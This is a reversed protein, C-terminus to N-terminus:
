QPVCKQTSTKLYDQCSNREQLLIYKAPSKKVRKIFIFQQFCSYKGLIIEVLYKIFIIHILEWVLLYIRPNDSLIYNCIKIPKKIKTFHRLIM